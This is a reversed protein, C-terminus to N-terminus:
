LQIHAAGRSNARYALEAVVVRLQEVIQGDTIEGQELDPDFQPLVRPSDDITVMVGDGAAATAAARLAATNISDRRLSGSIAVITPVQV